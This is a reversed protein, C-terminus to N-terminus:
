TEKKIVAMISDIEKKIEHNLKNNTGQGIEKSFPALDVSL